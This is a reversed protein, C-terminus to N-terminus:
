TMSLLDDMVSDYREIAAEMWADVINQKFEADSQFKGTISQAYEITFTQDEGTLPDTFTFEHPNTMDDVLSNFQTETIEGLEYAYSVELWTDVLQLQARVLTAHFFYMM